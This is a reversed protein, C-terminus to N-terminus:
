SYADEGEIKVKYLVLSGDSVDLAKGTTADLCSAIM